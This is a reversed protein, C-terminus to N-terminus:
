IFWSFLLIRTWQRRWTSQSRAMRIRRHWWTTKQGRQGIGKQKDLRSFIGLGQGKRRRSKSTPRKEVDRKRLCRIRQLEKARTTPVSPESWECLRPRKISVPRRGLLVGWLYQIDRKARRSTDPLWLVSVRIQWNYNQRENNLTERQRAFPACRSHM